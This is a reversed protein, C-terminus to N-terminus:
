ERPDLPTRDCVDFVQELVRAARVLEVEGRPKGIPRLRVSLGSVVV